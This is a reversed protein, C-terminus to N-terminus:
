APWRRWRMPRLPSQPDVASARVFRPPRSDGKREAALGSRLLQTEQDLTGPGTHGAQDVDGVDTGDTGKPITEDASRDASDDFIVPSSEAPPSSTRKHRPSRRSTRDHQVVVV